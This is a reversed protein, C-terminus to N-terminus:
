HQRLHRELRRQGGGLDLLLARQDEALELRARVLWERPGEVGREGVEVAPMGIRPGREPAGLAHRSQRAGRQQLAVGGRITGAAHHERDSATHRPLSRFLTTYPFLTSRPPRRIM